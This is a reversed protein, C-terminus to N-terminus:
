STYIERVMAAFKEADCSVREDDQMGAESYGIDNVAAADFGAAILFERLAAIFTKDTYILGDTDNDWTSENYNIGMDSNCSEEEDTTVFMTISNVTVDKVATSWLGNGGTAFVKDVAIKFTFGYSVVNTIYQALTNKNM